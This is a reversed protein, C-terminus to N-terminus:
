GSAICGRRAATEAGRESRRGVDTELALRLEREVFEAASRPQTGGDAGFGEAHGM